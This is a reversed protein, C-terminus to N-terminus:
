EPASTTLRFDGDEKALHLTQRDRSRDRTESIVVATASDGDIEVREIKILRVNVGRLLELQEECQDRANDGIAGTTQEVYEQTVLEHCLKDADRNNAATFFDRVTREIDSEDDGGCGAIVLL